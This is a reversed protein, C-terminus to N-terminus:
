PPAVLQTGIKPPTLIEPLLVLVNIKLHPTEVLPPAALPHWNQTSDINQSYYVLVHGDTIKENSSMKLNVIISGQLMDVLIARNETHSIASTVLIIIRTSLLSLRLSLSITVASLNMIFSDIAVQQEEISGLSMDDEASTESFM